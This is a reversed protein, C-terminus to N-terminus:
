RRRGRNMRNYRALKARASRAKKFRSSNRLRYQLYDYSVGSILEKWAVLYVELKHNIAIDRAVDLTPRGSITSYRPYTIIHNDLQPISDIDSYLKDNSIEYGLKETLNNRIALYKQNNTERFRMVSRYKQADMARRALKIYQAIDHSPFLDSSCM